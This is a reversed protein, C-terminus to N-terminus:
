QVQRESLGDGEFLRFAQQHLEPRMFKSVLTAMTRRDHGDTVRGGYNCEGICYQLAAYPVVSEDEGM